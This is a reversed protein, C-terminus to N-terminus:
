KSMVADVYAILDNIIKSKILDCSFQKNGKKRENPCGGFCAPLFRCPIMCELPLDRIYALENNTYFSGNYIDGISNNKDLISRQCRYLEGEPGILMQSIKEYGCYNRKVNPLLDNIKFSKYKKIAYKLFENRFEFFSFNDLCDDKSIECSDLDDVRALYIRVKGDLKKEVLLYDVLKDIEDKNNSSVNIRISINTKTANAVINDVVKDFCQIGKSYNHTERMGDFTIQIRSLSIAPIISDAVTNNFAIGNSIMESYFHIDKEQCIKRIESGISIIQDIALLPEGGFFLLSVRECQTMNIRNVIYNVVDQTTNHSMTCREHCSSEFCYWCHAQCKMTPAIEIHLNRVRTTYLERNREILLRNLENLREDVFFGQKVYTGITEENICDTLSKDLICLAGSYTNYLIYQNKYPIELNFISPKYKM